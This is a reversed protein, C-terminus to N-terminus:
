VRLLKELSIVDELRKNLMYYFYDRHETKMFNISVNYTFGDSCWPEYDFVVYENYKSAWQEDTFNVPIFSNENVVKDLLEKYPKCDGSFKITKDEVLKISYDNIRIEENDKNVEEKKDKTKSDEKIAYSTKLKILVTNHSKLAVGVQRQIGTGKVQVRIDVDGHKLTLDRIQKKVDGWTGSLVKILVDYNSNYILYTQVENYIDIM